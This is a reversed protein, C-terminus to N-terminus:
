GVHDMKRHFTWETQSYKNRILMDVERCEEDSLSGPEVSLGSYEFFSQTVLDALQNFDVRRGLIEGLSITRENLAQITLKRRNHDNAPMLLPLRKHGPGLLISGQQLIHKQARRQASGILKKGHVTIEYRAATSFCAGDRNEPITREEVMVGHVSMAQLAHILVESVRRYLKLGSGMAFPHNEPMVMSYTLEDAHLVSRGGTQRRVIHIGYNRCKEPDVEQETQQGYGISVAPPNWSYLRLTPPTNDRHCSLFMAEDVAMNYAASGEPMILLRWPQKIISSESPM